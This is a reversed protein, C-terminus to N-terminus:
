SSGPPAPLGPASSRPWSCEEGTAGGACQGANLALQPRSEPIVGSRFGRLTWATLRLQVLELYMWVDREANSRHMFPASNQGEETSLFTEVLMAAHLGLM